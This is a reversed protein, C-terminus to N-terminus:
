QLSPRPPGRPPRQTQVQEVHHESSVCAAGRLSGGASHVGSIIRRLVPVAPKFDTIGVEAAKDTVVHSQIAAKSIMLVRAEGVAEERESGRMEGTVLMGLQTKRMCIEAEDSVRIM